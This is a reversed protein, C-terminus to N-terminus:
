TLHLNNSGAVVLWKMTSIHWLDSCKGVLFFFFPNLFSQSIERAAAVEEERQAKETVDSFKIGPHSCGTSGTWCHMDHRPQPTRHQM